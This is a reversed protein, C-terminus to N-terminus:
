GLLGDLAREVLDARATASALQELGFGLLLSDDTSAAAYQQLLGEGIQWQTPSPDPSGPPVTGPAWQSTPGEFGDALDPRDAGDVAVHTDDVFVGVGGSGPDSVYTISVEVDSGAFDSLDYAVDEWTGDGTIANWTGTTGPGSCDAGGLYHGLFPHLTLLFGGAACEAPPDTTSTGGVEPLTTWDGGGATRAEVIVNDYSPETNWSLAFELEAATAGALDITRTLRAYSSDAHLVGAYRTGEVPDFQSGPQVPYLASGESAFQPFEDVPLVDSTPQLVGAEDLPNDGEVVPGGLEAEYGTLPAAVGTVSAPDSTDFRTYAGLYYQRFDDALILCDSFFGATSGPHDPDDSIVCDATPDGNLGYYLGGVSDSIGPLGQYQATEGAHILKGGANLYDRVAITLYQQREAVAVDPLPGFPSDTEEDEPDQTIRNDGLYWLVADYHSLVGLDHPM